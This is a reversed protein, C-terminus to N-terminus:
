EWKGKKLTKEEGCGQYESGREVVQYEEGVSKIFQGRLPPPILFKLCGQNQYQGGNREGALSCDNEANELRRYGCFPPLIEHIKGSCKWPNKSLNILM